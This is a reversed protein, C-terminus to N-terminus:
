PAVRSVYDRLTLTTYPPPRHNEGLGTALGCMFTSGLPTGAGPPKEVRKFQGAKSTVKAKAKPKAKTTKKKSSAKKTAKKQTAEQAYTGGLRHLANRKVTNKKKTTTKSGASRTSTKRKPKAKTVQKASSPAKKNFKNAM